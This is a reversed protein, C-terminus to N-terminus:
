AVQQQGRMVVIGGQIRFKVYQMYTSSVEGIKNFLRGLVVQYPSREDVVVRTVVMTKPLPSSGITLSLDIMRTSDVKSRQVM